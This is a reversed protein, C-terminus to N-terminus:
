QPTSAAAPTLSSAPLVAPEPSPTPTELYPPSEALELLSEMGDLDVILWEEADLRAYYGSNTPTISGVELTLEQGSVLRVTVRHTPVDLGFDAATGTVEDLIRLAGVQVAAAESLGQNAFAAIPEEVVWEGTASRAIRVSGGAAQAVQISVIDDPEVDFLPRSAATPTPDVRETARSALIRSLGVLAALVVILLWTERRIM